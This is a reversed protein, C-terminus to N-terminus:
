LGAGASRHCIARGSRDTSRENIHSARADSEPPSTNRDAFLCRQDWMRGILICFCYMSRSISEWGDNDEGEYVHNGGM